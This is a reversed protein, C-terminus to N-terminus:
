ALSLYYNTLTQPSCGWVGPRFRLDVTPFGRKFIRAIGRHIIQLIDRKTKGYGM